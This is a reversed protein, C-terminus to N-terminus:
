EGYVLSAAQISTKIALQMNKDLDQGLDVTKSRKAQSGGNIERAELYPKIKLSDALEKMTKIDNEPFDFADSQGTGDLYNKAGIYAEYRKESAEIFNDINIKSIDVGNPFDYGIHHLDLAKVEDFDYRPKNKIILHEDKSEFSLGYDSLHEKFKEEKNAYTIEMAERRRTILMPNNVMNKGGHLDYTKLGYEEANKELMKKMTKDNEMLRMKYLKNRYDILEQFEKEYDESKPVFALFHQYKGMLKENYEEEEKYFDYLARSEESVNDMREAEEYAERREKYFNKEKKHHNLRSSYSRLKFGFEVMPESDVKSAELAMQDYNMSMAELIPTRINKESEPIDKLVQYVSNMSDKIITERGNEILKRHEKDSLNEDEARKQAYKGVEQMAENFGSDGKKILEEVYERVLANPKEMAKSNSNARWMNKNAPLTALLFQSFGRENMVEHTFKKIFCKLNRKDYALNSSILQMEKTEDLSEDIGRRLLKKDRETLKGKQQGKYQGEKIVNGEGKDVMALHAHVHETDVQIVGVWELDDFNRDLKKVGDIISARLRMQDINGRYDGAKKLHFDESIIGNERLYEEEFSLVTKFVTKGNDFQSQIEKSVKRVKEDSMSIDGDDYKGRSGFAIGGLGESDRLEKKVKFIDDLKETAESRAMYKQIYADHDFKRVPAIDEVAGDRAMYRLVYDGVTGGRTGGSKTKTSFENVIVINQKLSM